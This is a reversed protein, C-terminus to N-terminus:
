MVYCLVIYLMCMYRETVDGLVAPVVRVASSCPFVGEGGVWRNLVTNNVDAPSWM